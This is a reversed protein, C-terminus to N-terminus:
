HPPNPAPSPHIHQADPVPPFSSSLSSIEGEERCLESTRGAGLPFLTDLQCPQIPLTLFSLIPAASKAQAREEAALEGERGAENGEWRRRGRHM